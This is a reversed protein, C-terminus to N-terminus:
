LLREPDLFFEEWDKMTMESNQQTSCDMVEILRKSGVCSRVQFSVIVFLVIFIYHSLLFTKKIRM